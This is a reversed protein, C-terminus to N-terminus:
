GSAAVVPDGLPSGGSSYSWLVHPVVQPLVVPSQSTRQADHGTMPWISSATASPSVHITVTGVNSNAFAHIVYTFSVTGSYSPSPTYVFGGDPTGTFSGPPTTLFEVGFGTGRPVAIQDNATVGPAMVTLTTDQAMTFTDDIAVLPGNTVTGALEVRLSTPN